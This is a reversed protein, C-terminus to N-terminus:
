SRQEVASYRLVPLFIDHTIRLPPPPPPPEEVDRQLLLHMVHFLNRRCSLCCNGRLAAPRGHLCIQRVDFFGSSSQTWFMGKPAFTHFRSTRKESLDVECFLYLVRLTVSNNNELCFLFTGSFKLSLKKLVRGRGHCFSSPSKEGSLSRKSARCCFTKTKNKAVKERFLHPISPSLIFFLFSPTESRKDYHLLLCLRVTSSHSSLINNVGNKPSLYCKKNWKEEGVTGPERLQKPFYLHVAQLPAPFWTSPKPLPSRM